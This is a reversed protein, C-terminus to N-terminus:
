QYYYLQFIVMYMGDKSTSMNANFFWGIDVCLCKGEVCSFGGGVTFSLLVRREDNFRGNRM